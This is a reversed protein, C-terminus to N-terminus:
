AGRPPSTLPMLTPGGDPRGGLPRGVEGALPATLQTTTLGGDPRGALPRGVERALPSTLQMITLGWGAPRGAAPRSGRRAPFHTIQDAPELKEEDSQPGRERDVEDQRPDHGAVGRLGHDHTKVPADAWFGHLRDLDGEPEVRVLADKLLVQLVQAVRERSVKSRR